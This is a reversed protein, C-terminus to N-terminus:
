KNEAAHTNGEYTFYAMAFREGMQDPALLTKIKGAQQLYAQRNAKKAYMELLEIIGFDVLAASQSKYAKLAFGEDEFAGILHGFHVDMTLDSQQYLASMDLGNEFFPYVRHDKYIRISFDNRAEKQGYDFTIFHVRQGTAALQSAFDEFGLAVEGKDIGYRKQRAKIATDNNPVWYPHLTQSDIHCMRDEYVLECAFADFIENAVAVVTQSRLQTLERYHTINVDQGFRSHIYNKQEQILKPHKEVIAFELSGILSPDRTFLWQIMDCLLYGRHAGIEVLTFSAPLINQQIQKYIGEAIAAGFFNSVSVATYFDGGKGITKYNEYYGQPGY